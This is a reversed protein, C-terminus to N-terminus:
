RWVPEDAAFNVARGEAAAVKGRAAVGRLDRDKPESTPVEDNEQVGTGAIAFHTADAVITEEAGEARKMREAGEATRM